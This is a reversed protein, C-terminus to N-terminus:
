ALSSTLVRTSVAGQGSQMVLTQFGFLLFHIPSQSKQPEIRVWWTNENTGEVFYHTVGRGISSNADVSPSMESMSLRPLLAKGTM